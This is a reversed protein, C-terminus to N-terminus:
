KDAQNLCFRSPALPYNASMTAFRQRYNLGPRSILTLLDAPPIFVHPIADNVRTWPIVGPTEYYKRAFLRATRM